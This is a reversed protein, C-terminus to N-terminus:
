QQSNIKERGGSASSVILLLKLGFFRKNQRSFLKPELFFRKKEAAAADLSFALAFIIWVRV